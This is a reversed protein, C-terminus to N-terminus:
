NEVHLHVMRNLFFNSFAQKSDEASRTVVFVFTIKDSTSELLMRKLLQMQLVPSLSTINDIIMVTNGESNEAHTISNYLHGIDHFYLDAHCVDHHIMEAANHLASVKGCGAPGSLLVTKICGASLYYKLEIEADYLSFTSTDNPMNKEVLQYVNM